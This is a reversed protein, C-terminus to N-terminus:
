VYMGVLWSLDRILMEAFLECAMRKVVEAEREPIVIDGFSGGPGKSDVEILESCELRCDEENRLSFRGQYGNPLYVFGEGTWAMLGTCPIIVHEPETWKGEEGAPAAAQVGLLTEYRHISFMGSRLLVRGFRDTGLYTRRLSDQFVAMVKGTLVDLFVLNNWVVKKSQMLLVTPSVFVYDLEDKTTKLSSPVPIDLYEERNSLRLTDGLLLFKADKGGDPHSPTCRYDGIPMEETRARARVSVLFSSDDRRAVLTGPAAECVLSDYLENTPTDDILLRGRHLTAIRDDRLLLPDGGTLTKVVGLTTDTPLLQTTGGISIVVHGKKTLRPRTTSQLYRLLRSRVDWTIVTYLGESKYIFSIVPLRQFRLSM